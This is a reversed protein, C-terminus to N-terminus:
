QIANFSGSVTFLMLNLLDHVNATLNTTNTGKSVQSQLPATVEPQTSVSTSQPTIQDTLNGNGTTNGQPICNPKTNFMQQITKEVASCVPSYNGRGNDILTAYQTSGFSVRQVKNVDVGKAVQALSALQSLTLDTMLYGDLSQLLEPAKSITDTQTMKVKVQSLIQQQRDTRGFDGGLDSHRTRVYELALQGNMHQPGPPIYLRQYGYKDNAGAGTDYPYNDDTMPHTVDIDVGGLDDIVKIFGQLGVWAYHNITIGYNAQIVDMIHGAAARAKEQETNGQWAQQFIEDIKGGPYEYQYTPDTMQMDRPISLMGVYNTKPDITVIIVTQALPQGANPDNGKGDTDSGLLVINTRQTLPDANINTTADKRIASQGTIDNISHAYNIQYYAFAGGGSIMLFALIVIFIRSWLPLRRPSTKGAPPRPGNSGGHGYAYPPLPLSHGDNRSDSAYTPKGPLPTRQQASPLLPITDLEAASVPIVPQRSKKYRSLLGNKQGPLHKSSNRTSTGPFQKQQLQEQKQDPINDQSTQHMFQHKM